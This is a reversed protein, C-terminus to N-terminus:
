SKGKGIPRGNGDTASLFSGATVGDKAPHIQITIKDGPKLTEPGMGARILEFPAGMQVSWEVVAGNPGPAMVQIWSHPNTFQFEKVTGSLAVTKTSDFMAYSHHAYAPAAALSLMAAALMRIQNTM